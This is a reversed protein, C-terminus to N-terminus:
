QCQVPNVAILPAFEQRRDYLESATWGSALAEQMARVAASTDIQIAARGNTSLEKEIVSM